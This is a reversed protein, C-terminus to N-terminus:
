IRLLMYHLLKSGSKKGVIDISISMIYLDLINKCRVPRIIPYIEGVMGQIIAIKLKRIDSCLESRETLIPSSLSLIFSYLHEGSDIPFVQNSDLVVILQDKKSSYTRSM